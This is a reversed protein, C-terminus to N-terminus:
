DGIIARIFAQYQEYRGRSGNTLKRRARHLASKHSGLGIGLYKAKAREPWKEKKGKHLALAAELRVSVLEQGSLNAQSFLHDVEKIFEPARVSMTGTTKSGGGRLSEWDYEKRLNEVEDPFRQPIVDLPASAPGFQQTEDDWIRFLLVYIEKYLQSQIPKPNSKWTGPFWRQAMQAAAKEDGQLIVTALEEVSARVETQNPEPFLPLWDGRVQWKSGNRILLAYASTPPIEVQDVEDNLSVTSEGNPSIAVLIKSAKSQWEPSTLFEQESVSSGFRRGLEPLIFEHVISVLVGAALLSQQRSNLEPPLAAPKGDAMDAHRVGDSDTFTSVWDIPGLHNITAKVDYPGIREPM